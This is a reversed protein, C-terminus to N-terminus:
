AQISSFLFGLFDSSGLLCNMGRCILIKKDVCVCVCVGAIRLIVTACLIMQFSRPWFMVTLYGQHMDVYTSYRTYRGATGRSGTKQKRM